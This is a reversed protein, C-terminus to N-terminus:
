LLKAQRKEMAHAFTGPELVLSFQQDMLDAQNSEILTNLVRYNIQSLQNDLFKATDSSFERHEIGNIKEMNYIAMAPLLSTEVYNFENADRLHRTEHHTLPENRHQKANLFDSLNEQLDLVQLQVIRLDLSKQLAEVSAYRQSPLESVDQNRYTISSDTVAAGTHALTLTTGMFAPATEVSHALVMPFHKLDGKAYIENKIPALVVRSVFELGRGGAAPQASAAGLLYKNFVDKADHPQSLSREEYNVNSYGGALIQSSLTWRHIHPKDEGGLGSGRVNYNHLRLNWKADGAEKHGSMLYLKDFLQTRASDKKSEQLANKDDRLHQLIGILDKKTIFDIDGTVGDKGAFGLEKNQDFSQYRKSIEQHVREYIEKPTSLPPATPTTIHSAGRAVSDTPTFRIPSLSSLDKM